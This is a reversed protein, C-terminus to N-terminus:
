VVGHHDSAALLKGSLWRGPRALIAGHYAKYLLISTEQGVNSFMYLFPGGVGIFPSENGSVTCGM